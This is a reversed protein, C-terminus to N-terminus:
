ILFKKANYSNKEFGRGNLSKEVQKRAESVSEDKTVDLPIITINEPFENRLDDAGQSKNSLCGAYVHYGSHALKKALIHGFGTDCGQFKM